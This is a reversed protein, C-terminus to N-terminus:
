HLAHTCSHLRTHTHAFLSGQKSRQGCRQVHAWHATVAVGNSARGVPRVAAVVHPGRVCVCRWERLGVLLPQLTVQTAALWSVTADKLAASSPSDRLGHRLEKYAGLPALLDSASELVRSVAELYGLFCGGMLQPPPDPLPDPHTIGYRTGVLLWLCDRQPSYVCTCYALWHSVDTACQLGNAAQVAVVNNCSWKGSPM